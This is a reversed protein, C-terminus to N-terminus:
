LNNNQKNKLRWSFLLDDIWHAIERYVINAKPEVAFIHGFERVMKVNIYKEPLKYLLKEVKHVDVMEDAESLFAIIPKKITQLRQITDDMLKKLEHVAYIPRVLYSFLNNKIFLEADTDKKNQYKKFYKFFGVFRFAFSQVILAPSLLIGGLINQYILKDQDSALYNCVLIGGLSSGALFLPSDASHLDKIKQEVASTWDVWRINDLAKYGNSGAIGHGPLLISCIRAKEGSHNWLYEGLPKVETPSATFGHILLVTYIPKDQFPKFEFPKALPHIEQNLM